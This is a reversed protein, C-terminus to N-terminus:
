GFRPRKRPIFLGDGSSVSRHRLRPAPQPISPPKVPPSSPEFADVDIVVPGTDPPRSPKLTSKDSVAVYDPSTSAIISATTTSRSPKSPSAPVLKSTSPLSASMTVTSALTGPKVGAVQRRVTNKRLAPVSSGGAAFFDFDKADDKSRKSPSALDSSPGAMTTDTKTSSPPRTVIAKLPTTSKAGSSSAVVSPRRLPQGTPRFGPNEARSQEKIKGMLTKPATTM